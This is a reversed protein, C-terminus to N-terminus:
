SKILMHTEWFWDDHLRYITKFLYSSINPFRKDGVTNIQNKYMIHKTMAMSEILSLRFQIVLIIYPTNGKIKLNYTICNKQIKDIYKEMIRYLYQLGMWIPITVTEFLLKKRDWLFIDIWKLKNELGYYSKWGGSIMKGNIYNLNLKYNINVKLDKYSTM